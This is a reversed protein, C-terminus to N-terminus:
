DSAGEEDLLGLGAAKVGAEFRSEAELEQMIVAIHRRCTRVSMGLRRAVVEDKLGQALLRIISRQLEDLVNKYGPGDAIFPTAAVWFQDFLSCLFAVLVPERVILAGASEEPGIRKPIFVTSRDFVLMREPLQETTRVEAGADVVAAVYARTHLSARATHQYIQRMRVGRNIAALDRPLAADLLTANSAGGPQVTMLERSCEQVEKEILLRVDGAEAITELALTNEGSSAAHWTLYAPVLQLLKERAIDASNRYSRIIADLPAVVRAAAVEPSVPSLRTPDGKMPALLFNRILDDCCRDLEAETVHAAAAAADRRLEGDRLVQLYVTIAASDLEPALNVPPIGSDSVKSV